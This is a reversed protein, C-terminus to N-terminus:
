SPQLSTVQADDTLGRRRTVLRPRAIVADVESFDEVLEDPEYEALEAPSFNGTAVAITRAGIAQGCAIDHPTDGIVDIATARSISGTNRSRASSRSLGLRTAITATM